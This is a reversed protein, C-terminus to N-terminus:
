VPVQVAQEDLWIMPGSINVFGAYKLLLNSLSAFRILANKEAVSQEPAITNASPNFIARVKQWGLTQLMPIESRPQDCPQMNIFRAQWRASLARVDGNLQPLRFAIKTSTASQHHRKPGPVLEIALGTPPQVDLLAEGLEQAIAVVSADLTTRQGDLGDYTSKEDEGIVRCPNQKM